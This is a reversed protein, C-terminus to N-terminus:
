FVPKSKIHRKEKQPALDILSQSLEENIENDKDKRVVSKLDISHTTPEVGEIDIEKLKEVYGIISSLDKRMSEVEADDFEIRSLKAIHEVEQKTLM